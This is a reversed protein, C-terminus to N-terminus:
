YNYEGNMVRNVDDGTLVGAACLTRLIKEARKLRAIAEDLDKPKNLESM